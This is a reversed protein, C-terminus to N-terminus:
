RASPGLSVVGRAFKRLCEEESKRIEEEGSHGSRDAGFEVMMPLPSECTSCSWNRDRTLKMMVFWTGERISHLARQNRTRWRFSYGRFPLM